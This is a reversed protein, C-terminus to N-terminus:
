PTPLAAEILAAQELDHMKTSGVAPAAASPRSIRRLRVGELHELLNLAIFSWAGQNAPEEQVWAFDEANPFGALAARLEDVPLPYLEELRLIATDAIGRDARAQLLDYYVKGSCLLVRRVANADLPSGNVGRDAAVAAFGASTFDAVQSVCLRHRLLSKPTFVVLPKKKPSLAQRRLLHFHNAPTTPVAVRINDEACLQLYRELRGSTHDPGQGEHSHPLLLGISSIQGWKVEGSSIFEDVISQAGNAFDGFQAEWLVLADPNEVSYGYEFGMAAFESLLSDYVFFRAKPDAISQLPVYDKGTVSDVIAAHRQVFTGRRSDQGSLRVTVGQMVLSGFAMLEGFGWDINGEVSMKARRELLQAVRKHPTFGEPLNVHAEGIRRLVDADVATEIEPEPEPERLRSRRPSTLKADRTAKFVTEL